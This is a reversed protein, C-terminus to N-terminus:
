EDQSNEDSHDRETVGGVWGPPDSAPFSDESAIDVADAAEDDPRDTSRRPAPPRTTERPERNM